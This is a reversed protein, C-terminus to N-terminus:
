KQGRARAVGKNIADYIGHDKESLVQLYTYRSLISLTADTSGGDIIIHEFDPHDQALVSEVADPILAARNLCATVISIQPTRMM